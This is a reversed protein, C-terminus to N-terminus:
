CWQVLQVLKEKLTEEYDSIDVFGPGAVKAPLNNLAHHREAVAENM